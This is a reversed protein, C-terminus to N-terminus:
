DSAALNEESGEHTKKIQQDCWYAIADRLFVALGPTIDNYTKAFREDDVYMQGLGRYMEPACPYFTEIWAHHRSVLSQVAADTPSMEILEGLAQAIEGHEKKIRDFDEQKMHKVRKASEQYAQTQGWRAKVEDKYEDLEDQPFGAYLNNSNMSNGKKISNITSDITHILQQTRQQKLILLARQDELAQETRYQPANMMRQIDVLPFELERFFLIQQLKLLEAEQYCRYGNNKLHSPKLLGIEDYYHLTRVSVGALKALQKITYDM